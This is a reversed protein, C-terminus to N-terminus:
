LCGNANIRVNSSDIAIFQHSALITQGLDAYAHDTHRPLASFEFSQSLKPVAIFDALNVPLGGGSLSLKDASLEVDFAILVDHDHDVATAEHSVFSVADIRIQIARQVRGDHEAVDCPAPPYHKM